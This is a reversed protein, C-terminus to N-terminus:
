AGMTVTDGGMTVTEGGLTVVFQSDIDGASKCLLQLERGMGTPDNASLIDYYVGGHNLRMKPSVGPQYRCVFLASIESRLQQAAVFERGGSVAKRARLTAYTAWSVSVAGFSDRTETAKEITISHRLTGARM